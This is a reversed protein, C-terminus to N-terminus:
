REVPLHTVEVKVVVMARADMPILCEGARVALSRVPRSFLDCVQASAIKLIGDAIRATRRVGSANLLRLVVAKGSAPSADESAWQPLVHLVLVPSAPLKLFSGARPLWAGPLQLQAASQYIPPQDIEAGFRHAKAEDFGAAHPQMVYRATVRGPQHGRFNTEWYNNTVWGLLLARELTFESQDHAFHFDGLQVMPNEPCAITVGFDKSSFDVWRQVTFYDQCCRPLQDKGPQMALGGIDLRAVAGPVAFPMAVYTAEPHTCLSMDWWARLDLQPAHAPLLYRLTVPGVLDAYQLTEIIEIWDDGRYVQHSLLEGAGHRRARWGSHWCRGHGKLTFDMGSFFRHRSWGERDAVTEYVVSGLPYDWSRDVIQRRLKKDYWSAIGGRRLDFSIRLHDNEVTADEEHRREGKGPVLRDRPVVAYGYAPIETPPLRYPQGGFNDQAHRTASPDAPFKGPEVTACPVEGWAMRAWPLPNFVVIGDGEKPKVRLAIEAAGDRVLLRSLSRVLYAAHAKHNWQSLGDEGQPDGVHHYWGWTHEHWLHLADWAQRRYLPAPALLRGSDRGPEDPAGKLIEGPVAGLAGAAALLAEASHLRARSTRAVATERASSIAGFNWYDTWDGRHSPLRSLHPRAARWFERWTAFRIRVGGGEANWKEIFESYGANAFSNDGISVIQAAAFPLRWGAADLKEQVLPLNDRLAQTDKDMGIWGGFGYHWGNLVPLHRGSPSQWRLLMPRKLPAGGFHENIAMSMTEIGADLLVDTLPWNHGNVDCSMWHTITLGYYERMKQVLQVMEILDATGALPTSNLLQACVEIREAKELARFREIQRASSHELWYKLPGLTEVTWKFAHDAETEAYRECADIATDIFRRQMEWLIPQDLTFGIDTHSHHILYLTKLKM